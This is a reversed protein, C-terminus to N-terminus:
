SPCLGARLGASSESRIGLPVLAAIEIDAPIGFLEKVEADRFKHIMTICSDIGLARALLINQV